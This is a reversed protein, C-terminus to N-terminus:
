RASNPRRARRTPPLNALAAAIPDHPAEPPAADADCPAADIGGLTPRAEIWADLQERRWGIRGTSLRIAPVAPAVVQRFTTLSLGVYAAAWEEKLARPWGPLARSGDPM